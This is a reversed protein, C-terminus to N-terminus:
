LPPPAKERIRTMEANMLWPVFDFSTSLETLNYEVLNAPITPDDQPRQRNLIVERITKKAEDLAFYLAFEAGIQGAVDGSFAQPGYAFVACVCTIKGNKAENTWRELFQVVAAHGLSTSKESMLM